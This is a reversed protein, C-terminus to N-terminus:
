KQPEAVVIAIAAVQAPAQLLGAAAAAVIVLTRM